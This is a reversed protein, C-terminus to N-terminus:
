INTCTCFLIIYNGLIYQIYTHIYHTYVKMPVKWVEVAINHGFTKPEATSIQPKMSNLLAKMSRAKPLQTDKMRKEHILMKQYSGDSSKSSEFFADALLADIPDMGSLDVSGPTKMLRAEFEDNDFLLQKELENLGDDDSMEKQSENEDSDFAFDDDLEFRGLVGGDESQEESRRKSGPKRGGGGGGGGGGSDGDSDRQMWPTPTRKRNNAGLRSNVHKTYRPAESKNTSSAADSSSDSDTGDERSTPRSGSSPRASRPREISPPADPEM